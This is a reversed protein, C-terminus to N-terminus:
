KAVWGRGDWIGAKGNKFNKTEGFRRVGVTHTAQSQGGLLPDAPVVGLGPTDYSPLGPPEPKMDITPMNRGLVMDLMSPQLKVKADPMAALQRVLPHYAQHAEYLKRLEAPSAKGAKAQALYKDQIAKYDKVINAQQEENFQTISKAKKLGDIGGYDYMAATTGRSKDVPASIEGLAPNRTQQFTHTLEHNMIPANYILPKGVKIEYPNDSSVYSVAKTQDATQAPPANIQRVKSMDLGQQLFAPAELPNPFGTANGGAPPDADLNYGKPPKPVPM